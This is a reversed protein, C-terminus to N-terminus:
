AARKPAPVDFRLGFADLYEGTDWILVPGKCCRSELVRDPPPCGAEKLDAANRLVASMLDPPEPGVLPDGPDAGLRILERRVAKWTMPM